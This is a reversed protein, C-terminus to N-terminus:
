RAYVEVEQLMVHHPGTQGGAQGVMETAGGGWTSDHILLRIKTTTVPKFAHNFVHRSDFYSDVKTRTNPTLFQFTKPPQKVHEITTWEGNDDYQLEFDALTGLWQWPAPAWVIVRAIETPKPFTLDVTVAYSKTGDMWPQDPDKQRYYWNELEGNIIKSLDNPIAPKLPHPGAGSANAKVGEGRALNPGFDQPVVDITQGDAIDVWVPLEPVTLTVRDGTVPLDSAVGFASVARLKGGGGRVILDVKGATEGSSIFVAVRKRDGEFLSGLYLRNGAPGLDYAKSFNTGFVEEAYVRM